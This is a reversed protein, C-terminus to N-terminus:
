YHFYKINAVSMFLHNLFWASIIFKSSKEFGYIM